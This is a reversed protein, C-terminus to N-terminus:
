ATGRAVALGVRMYVKHPLDEKTYVPELGYRPLDALAAAFYGTAVVRNRCMGTGNWDRFAEFMAVYGSSVRRLQHMVPERISEMQELAQRTYVLDFAGDEFPLEAASGRRLDLRTGVAPNLLEFPAFKVLADPLANAHAVRTAERVGRESLEIGAFRVEPFRAALTLLNLGRGFGVELVSRPKLQEILRALCLLHVRPIGWANILHHEDHWRTLYLKRPRDPALNQFDFTGWIQEYSTKVTDPSRVPGRKRDLLTHKWRRIWWQRAHRRLRRRLDPDGPAFRKHIYPALVPALEADHIEISTNESM